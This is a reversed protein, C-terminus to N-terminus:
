FNYIRKLRIVGEDLVQEMKQLFMSLYVATHDPRPLGSARPNASRLSRHRSAPSEPHGVGSVGARATEGQTKLTLTLAVRDTVRM